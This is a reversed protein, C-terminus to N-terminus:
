ASPPATRNRCWLRVVYAAGKVQERRPYEKAGPYDLYPKENSRLGRTWKVCAAGVQVCDADFVQVEM